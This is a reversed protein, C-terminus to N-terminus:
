RKIIQEVLGQNTLNLKLSFKISQGFTSQQLNNSQVLPFYVGLIDGLRIGLGLDYVTSQVGNNSLVGYDGFVGVLSTLVPLPAYFNTTVMWENASLNSASGFNGMDQNHQNSWMGTVENRGFYYEENFLDQAGTRGSLPAAYRNTNYASNVTYMFNNLAFARLEVYKRKNKLYYNLKYKVEISARAMEDNMNSRIYSARANAVFYHNPRQYTYKYDAFAGMEEINTATRRTMKYMGELLLRNHHKTRPGRKGFTLNVYPNVAYYNANNRAISDVDKFTKLSVGAKGLRVVSSPTFTYFLEGMGSLNQRGFSYMPTLLFTFKNPTLQMNHLSVGLMLKDSTNLGLAPTWAINSEDRRNATFVANLKLPEVRNILWDKKWTNNTRNVEPIQTNADIVVEAAETGPFNVTEKRDASKAWKTITDGAPTIM